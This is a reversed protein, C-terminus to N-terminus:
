TRSWGGEAGRRCRPMREGDRVIRRVVSEVCGRRVGRPICRRRLRKKVKSWDRSVCPLRSSWCASGPGCRVSCCCGLRWGSGGRRGSCGAAAFRAPDRVRSERTRRRRSQEGGRHCQAVEREEEKRNGQGHNEGIPERADVGHRQRETNGDSNREQRARAARPTCAYERCETGTAFCLAVTSKM